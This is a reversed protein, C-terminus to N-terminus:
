KVFVTHPMNVLSYQSNTTRGFAYLLANRSNDGVPWFTGFSINAAHLDAYLMNATADMRPQTGTANAPRDYSGHRYALWYPYNIGWGATTIISDAIYVLGSPYRLKFTKFVRIYHSTTSAQNHMLLENAGYTSYTYQDQEAKAGPCWFTKITVGFPPAPPKSGQSDYGSLTYCFTSTSTWKSPVRSPCVYDEYSDSYLQMAVGIQKLNSLCAIKMAKQRAGSLAPLLMSALIAIIAIVVLLEILTFFNVWGPRLGTNRAECFSFVSHKIEKNQHKQQCFRNKKDPYIRNM